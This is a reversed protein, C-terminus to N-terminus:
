GATTAGQVSPPRTEASLTPDLDAPRRALVIGLALTWVPTIVFAIAGLPGALALIGLGVSAWALWGPLAGSRLGAIGTGLALTALGAIFPIFDDQSM